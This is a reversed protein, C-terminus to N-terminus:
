WIIIIVELADTNRTWKLPEKLVLSQLNVMNEFIAQLINNKLNNKLLSQYEFHELNLHKITFVEHLINNNTNTLSLKRLQSAKPNQLYDVIAEEFTIKGKMWSVSLEELTPLLSLLLAVEANTLYCDMLWLKTVNLSCNDPLIAFEKFTCSQLCICTVNKFKKFPLAFVAVNEFAIKSFTMETINEYLKETFEYYNTPINESLKIAYKLNRSSKLFLDFDEFTTLEIKNSKVISTYPTIDSWTQCVEAVRPIRFKADM